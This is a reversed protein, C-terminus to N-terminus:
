RQVEPEEDQAQYQNEKGIFATAIMGTGFLVGAGIFCCSTVGEVRDIEKQQKEVEKNYDEVNSYNEKNLNGLKSKLMAAHGVAAMGSLGFFSGFVVGIMAITTIIKNKLVGKM